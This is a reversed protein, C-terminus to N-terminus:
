DQEEAEDGFVPPPENFDEGRAHAERMRNFYEVVEIAYDYAQARGDAFGELYEPEVRPPPENFEEGRAYAKHMRKFYEVTRQTRTAARAEALGLAYGEDYAKKVMNYAFVM